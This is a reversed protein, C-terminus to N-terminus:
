QAEDLTTDWLYSDYIVTKIYAAPMIV